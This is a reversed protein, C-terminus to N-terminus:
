MSTMRLSYKGNTWRCKVSCVVILLTTSASTYPTPTKKCILSMFIDVDIKSSYYKCNAGGLNSNSGGGPGQASSSVYVPFRIQLNM